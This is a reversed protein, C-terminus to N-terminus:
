LKQYFVGIPVNLYLGSIERFPWDVLKILPILWVQAKLSFSMIQTQTKWHQNSATLQRIHFIYKSRRLGSNREEWSAIHYYIKFTVRLSFIIISGASFIGREYAHEVMTCNQCSNLDFRKFWFNLFCQVAYFLILILILICKQQCLGDGCQANVGATEHQVIELGLLM